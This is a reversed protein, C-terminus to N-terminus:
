AVEWQNNKLLNDLEPVIELNEPVHLGSIKDGCLPIIHDVHVKLGGKRLAKAEMHVADMYDIQEKTLWKPVRLKRKKGCVKSKTNVKDPNKRGWTRMYFSRKNRQLTEFNDLIFQCVSLAKKRQTESVARYKAKSKSKENTSVKKGSWYAIREKKRQQEKSLKSTKNKVFDAHTKVSSIQAIARSIGKKTVAYYSKAIFIDFGQLRISKLDLGGQLYKKHTRSIM